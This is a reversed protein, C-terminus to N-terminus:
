LHYTLSVLFNRGLDDAFYRLRDTYNRYSVNFLNRAELSYHLKKWSSTWRLNTLLFAPPPPLLDFDAADGTFRDIGEQGAFLFEEVTITRPHQFQEFTYDFRIQLQGESLWSIKPQYNLGYTLQPAPQAAFFDAPSLQKSWLFSGKAESTFQPSHTWRSSVDVGWLLADTQDYIFFVFSGRPTRTIGAPKSYIFNSIYNVYGTLELELKDTKLSYTNIWKYGQESPVERDNQDLIGERTSVFDSDENITYRWLGYELFFSHQGFRYLEAVNPARWATGLNSRFTAQKGVPFQLGITGSLNRYLVTNRYITNDPERGTIDSELQDFRLGVELLSKGLPLSEILYVGLRQEDYNPIFPVTNTGPQNDNAKKLWQAGLKGSLAGLDPHNWDLDISQTRLELDINPADGRRVGFEQRLNIQYGYQLHLSQQEGIYRLGVKYLDHQVAQRPQNIDYSFPLTYLPTDVVMARRLDDLNGFVSGSLVGLEQEFHSYSAEIDLKALPHVLLEGYYGSEEKGTNTLLYDAASLDGQKTWSGGGLISWWKFGKSLEATGEGARGNTRGHLRLKGRLPSSLEVKAPNVLIVGGLADPGFRVTAAGKVVEINDILSPDIEPAHDEGWNQFEHRLGNNILLVRNSHLGHIIPKVINQGTKLTGVGAIESVADGFSEAAVAELAQGSLRSTTITSIGSQLSTAEVVISELLYEDPALYIEIFPHHFDHHHKITKYGLYSFAIDYEQECLSELNFRGDEDTVIGEATGELQVSVYALPEKTEADYVRGSIGYPCDATAAQQAPLQQVLLCFCLYFYFRLSM